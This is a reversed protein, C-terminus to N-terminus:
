FRGLKTSCVPGPVTVDATIHVVKWETFAPFQAFRCSQHRCLPGQRYWSVIAADIAPSVPGLAPLVGGTFSVRLDAITM